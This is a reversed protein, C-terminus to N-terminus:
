CPWAFCILDFWIACIGGTLLAGILGDRLQGARFGVWVVVLSLAVCLLRILRVYVLPDSSLLSTLRM